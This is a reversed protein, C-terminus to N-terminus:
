RGSTLSKARDLLEEFETIYVDKGSIFVLIQTGDSRKMTLFSQMGKGVQSIHTIDVDVRYFEKFMQSKFEQAPAGMQRMAGEFSQFISKLLEEESDEDIPFEIVLLVENKEMRFFIGVIEDGEELYPSMTSLLSNYKEKQKPNLKPKKLEILINVFGDPLPKEEDASSCFSILFLICIVINKM